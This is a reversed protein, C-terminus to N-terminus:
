ENASKLEISELEYTGKHYGPDLRFRGTFEQDDIKFFINNWGKGLKVRMSNEENYKWKRKTSYFLRAVTRQPAFIKAMIYFTNAEPLDFEKFYLQSGGWEMNEYMIMNREERIIKFNERRNTYNLIDKGKLKILSKATDCAEKDFWIDPNLVPSDLYREVFEFLVIDPSYKEIYENIRDAEGSLTYVYVVTGFTHHLFYGLNKGFSDRLYLLTFPKKKNKIIVKQFLKKVLEDPGTTKFKENNIIWHLSDLPQNFTPNISFFSLSKICDRWLQHIYKIRPTRAIM